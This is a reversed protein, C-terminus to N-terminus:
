TMGDSRNGTVNEADLLAAVHHFHFSEHSSPRYPGLPLLGAPLLRFMKYGALLDWFDRMLTRQEACPEGFEFQNDKLRLERNLASAGHLVDLEAGEADIKLLDVTEIGRDKVFQNISIVGVQYSVLPSGPRYNELVERYRTALRSGDSEAFDFLECTGGHAGCALQLSAFDYEQAETRLTEFSRPHPEFSYIEAKPSYRRVLKAYDGHYAGVDLVVAQGRKGLGLSRVLHEEGTVVHNHWNGFGLGRLAFHLLLNNM